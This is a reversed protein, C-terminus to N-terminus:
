AAERKLWAEVKDKSGWCRGPACNYVWQVITRLAETNKRDARCVANILNNELVSTLFGGPNRREEIYSKLGDMTQKPIGDEIGRMYDVNM